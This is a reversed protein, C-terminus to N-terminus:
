NAIMQEGLDQPINTVKNNSDEEEPNNGAGTQHPQWAPQQWTTSLYQELIGPHINEFNDEEM